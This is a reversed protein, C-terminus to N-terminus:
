TLFFLKHNIGERVSVKKQKYLKLLIERVKKPDLNMETQIEVLSIGCKNESKNQKFELFKFVEGEIGMTIFLCLLLFVFSWDLCM